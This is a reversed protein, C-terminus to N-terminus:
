VLSNVTQLFDSCRGLNFSGVLYASPNASLFPLAVVVQWLACISLNLAVRWVPLAQLFFCSITLLPARVQHVRYRFVPSLNLDVSFYAACFVKVMLVLLGPAMLLLNMKVSVAATFVACALTWRCM